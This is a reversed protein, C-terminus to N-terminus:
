NSPRHTVVAAPQDVLQESTITTFNVKTLQENLRKLLITTGFKLMWVAGTKSTAAGGDARTVVSRSRLFQATIQSRLFGLRTWGSRIDPDPRAGAFREAALLAANKVECDVM